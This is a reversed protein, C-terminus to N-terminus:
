LVVDIVVVSIHAALVTNSPNKENRRKNKNNESRILLLLSVRIFKECCYHDRDRVYDLIQM